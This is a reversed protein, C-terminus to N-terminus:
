SVVDRTRRYLGALEVLATVTNWNRLTALGLNREIVTSNLKARGLGAAYYVYGADGTVILREDDSILPQIGQVDAVAPAKEFFCVYMRRGFEPLGTDFPNAKAIAAFEKASKVVTNVAFGLKGALHNELSKKVAAPAALRHEFVVNGSQIYTRVNGAGASVFHAQLDAMKVLRQGSVNIGRLLAIYTPM